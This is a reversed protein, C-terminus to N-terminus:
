EKRNAASASEEATFVIGCKAKDINYDCARLLGTIISEVDDGVYGAQTLSTADAIYYPVGLLKAITKILFTKGSGTKGGIVINSKDIKTELSTNNNVYLRKFHNYIAVSLTIKAEDQGIVYQDLHQKIEKPTYLKINFDPSISLEQM